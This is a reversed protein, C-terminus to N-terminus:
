FYSIYDRFKFFMNFPGQPKLNKVFQGKQEGRLSKVTLQCKIFITCFCKRRVESGSCGNILKQKKLYFIEELLLSRVKGCTM